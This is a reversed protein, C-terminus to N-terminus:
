LGSLTYISCQCEPFAEVPNLNKKAIGEDEGSLKEKSLAVSTWGLFQSFIVQTWIPV